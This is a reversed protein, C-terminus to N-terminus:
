PFRRKLYTELEKIQIPKIMYFDMGSNLAQQKSELDAYGTNAICIGKPIQNEHMMMKLNKVTEFGDMIPM